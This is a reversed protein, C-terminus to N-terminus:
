IIPGHLAEQALQISNHLGKSLSDNSAVIDHNLADISPTIERAISAMLFARYEATKTAIDADLERKLNINDARQQIIATQLREIERKLEEQTM